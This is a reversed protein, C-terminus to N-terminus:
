EGDVRTAAYQDITRLLEEGNMPKRLYDDMGVRMCQERTEQMADATLAIIPIRQRGSERRRIETAAEVGGMVPMQLDMLILDFAVLDHLEVAAKGDAACVVHHGAKSLLAVALKQNVPNDEALLINLAPGARRLALPPAPAAVGRLAELMAQRLESAAVPKTLYQDIAYRGHKETWVSRDLSSLMLISSHHGACRQNYQEIFEFGDMGPMHLDVLLFDFGCGPPQGTAIRLAAEGGGALVPIV